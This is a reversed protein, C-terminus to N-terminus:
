LEIVVLPQRDVSKIQDVFPVEGISPVDGLLKESNAPILDDYRRKGLISGLVKGTPIPYEALRGSVAVCLDAFVDEGLLFFDVLVRNEPRQLQEKAEDLAEMRAAREKLDAISRAARREKNYAKGIEKASARLPKNVGIVEYPSPVRFPDYPAEVSM